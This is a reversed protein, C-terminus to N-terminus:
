MCLIPPTISPVTTTASWSSAKSPNAPSRTLPKCIPTQEFALASCIIRGAHYPGEGLPTGFETSLGFKEDKSDGAVIANCEDFSAQLADASVGMADALEANDSFGGTALIVAKANVRIPGKAGDAIVGVAEGDDMILSKAPTSLRLDLNGMTEGFDWLYQLMGDGMHLFSGDDSFCVGGWYTDPSVPAYAMRIGHEIAWDTAPGNSDIYAKLVEPVAGWNQSEMFDHYLKDKMPDIQANRMNIGDITAIGETIASTGGLVSKKGAM